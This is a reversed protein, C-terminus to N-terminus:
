QISGGPVTTGPITHIVYACIENDPFTLLGWLGPNRKRVTIVVPSDPSKTDEYIVTMNAPIEASYIGRDSRQAMYRYYFDAKIEGTGFYLNGGLRQTTKIAGIRETKSAYYEEPSIITLVLVIFSSYVISLLLGCLYMGIRKFGPTSYEFHKRFSYTFLIGLLIGILFIIM